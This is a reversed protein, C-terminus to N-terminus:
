GYVMPIEDIHYIGEWEDLLQKRESAAQAWDDMKLNINGYVSNIETYHKMSQYLMDEVDLVALNYFSEEMTPTITALNRDHMLAIDFVLKCSAFINYITVKRPHSYDFNIKPIMRNALTKGANSLMAQNVMNGNLLPIGGGWYSVATIDAEDYKIDRIFMIERENFIDPLLYIEYNANRELRELTNLDFRFKEFYPCYQSFTRLTINQIIDVIAEDPNEFPIAMSYIGCKVKIRTVLNSLNM